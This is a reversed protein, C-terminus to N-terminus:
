PPAIAVSSLSASNKPPVVILDGGPPMDGGPLPSVQLQFPLLQISSLLEPGEGRSKAVTAVNLPPITRKPPSFPLSNESVHTHSPLVQVRKRTPLSRQPDAPDAPGPSPQATVRIVLRDAACGIALTM